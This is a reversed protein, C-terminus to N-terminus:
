IGERPTLSVQKPENRVDEFRRGTELMDACGPKDTGFRGVKLVHARDAIAESTASRKHPDMGIIVTM